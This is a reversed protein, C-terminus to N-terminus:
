FFELNIILKKVCKVHVDNDVKVRELLIKVINNTGRSYKAMLAACHM